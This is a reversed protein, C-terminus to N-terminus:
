TREKKPLTLLIGFFFVAICAVAFLSRAFPVDFTESITGFFVLKNILRVGFLALVPIVLIRYKIPDKFLILLVIGFAIVYSAAFKAAMQFSPDVEPRLGLILGSVNAFSEMPLLLASLGLLVHYVGAIGVFVKFLKIKM